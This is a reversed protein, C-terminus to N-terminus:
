LKGPQFWPTRKEFLTCLIWLIWLISRLQGLMPLKFANQAIPYGAEHPQNRELALGSKDPRRVNLTAARLRRCCVEFFWSSKPPEKGRGAASSSNQRKKEEM